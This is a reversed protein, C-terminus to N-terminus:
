QNLILNHTSQTYENLGRFVCYDLHNAQFTEIIFRYFSQM